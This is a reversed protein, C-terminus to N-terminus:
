LRVAVHIRVLSGARNSKDYEVAWAFVRHIRLGNFLADNGSCAIYSTLSSKLSFAPQSEWVAGKPLLATTSRGVIDEWWERYWRSHVSHLALSM